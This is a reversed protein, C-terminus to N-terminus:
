ARCLGLSFPNLVPSHVPREFPALKLKPQVDGSSNKILFLTSFYILTNDYIDNIIKLLRKLHDLRCIDQRYLSDIQSVVILLSMM